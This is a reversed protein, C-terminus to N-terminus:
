ASYIAPSHLCSWSDKTHISIWLGDPVDVTGIIMLLFGDLEHSSLAFCEGVSDMDEGSPTPTSEPHTHWDGVYHLGQDFLKKIERNEQSRNPRFWFRRRRDQRRPGTALCVKITQGSFTAFLQGGAEKDCPRLQRHTRLHDFVDDAVIIDRLNERKFVMIDRVLLPQM